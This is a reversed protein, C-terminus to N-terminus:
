SALLALYSRIDSWKTSAVSVYGDPRVLWIGDKHFPNRLTPELLDPFARLLEQLEINNPEAFLAFRPSSGSNLPAEGGQIPARTGPKPEKAEAYGNLPSEPYSVSLETLQDAM